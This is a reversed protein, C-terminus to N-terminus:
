RKLWTQPNQPKGKYRIEFYVSAEDTGGSRGAVAIAEGADVWDGPSKLLSSSHGYLSMYGDGHDVITMLGFGRLWNAFVVRGYHVAAIDSEKGTTILIGNYKLKGQALSDGFRHNVKGRAPWPLKAKLAKFPKSENPSPIRAIAEEVERLLDELRSRDAELSARESERSSIDSKLATLTRERQQKRDTLQSQREALQAQLQTLEVQTARTSKQTANLKKLTANFDELRQIADSSLYEYYTMTRAITQPDIENLLVKVAPADGEMWAARIQKKLSERQRDLTSLLESAQIQLEDLKEKQQRARTELSRRERTLQNISRETAVLEQELDSRDEEADKLWEDIDSIQEKLAAVQAPTVEQEAMLPQGASLLWGTLILGLANRPTRIVHFRRPYGASERVEAPM